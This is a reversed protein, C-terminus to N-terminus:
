LAKPAPSTRSCWRVTTRSFPVAVLHQRDPDADALGLCGRLQDHVQWHRPDIGRSRSPFRILSRPPQTSRATVSRRSSAKRAVAREGHLALPLLPHLNLEHRRIRRATVRKGPMTCRSASGPRLALRDFGGFWHSRARAHPCRGVASTAPTGGNRSTAQIPQLVVLAIRPIEIAGAFRRPTSTTTSSTSAFGGPLIQSRRSSAGRWCTASSKPLGCNSRPPAQRTRDLIRAEAGADVGVPAPQLPGGAARRSPDGSLASAVSQHLRPLV